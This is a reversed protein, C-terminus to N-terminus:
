DNYIQFIQKWLIMINQPHYSKSAYIANEGLKSRLNKNEILKSISNSFCNIDGQKVLIGSNSSIISKPGENDYSVCPLGCSMAEIIVLGFGEIKSSLAFISANKLVEFVNESRGCLFVKDILNLKKILSKLESYCPGEGYIKLIWTPHKQTVIAFSKILDKQNKQPSLSGISIIVESDLNSIEDPIESLPNPMVFVNDFINKFCSKDRETLVTLCNLRSYYKKRLYRLYPNISNFETHESGIKIGKFCAKALIISPYNGISIAIDYEKGEFYASLARVDSGFSTLVSIRRTIVSEYYKFKRLKLSEVKIAKDIPFFVKSANEFGLITVRHGMKFFMNAWSTYVREGGGVYTLYEAIIVINM